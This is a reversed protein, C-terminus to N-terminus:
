ASKKLLGQVGRIAAVVPPGAPGAGDGSLEPVWSALATLVRDRGGRVGDHNVADGLTRLMADVEPATVVADRRLVRVAPHETEDLVEADYALAEHLKEGPRSGTIVIELEAAAGVMRGAPSQEARSMASGGRLVPELGHALVFREALELINVPEGMDLVFLGAESGREARGAISAAQLVLSAAEPITMFYRTMRPDTVTIPGGEGLQASWIPLVSGASGLVNGFRVIGCRMAWGGARGQIYMEALRKTAGMVSRPRVAKDSSILVFASAGAAAAADAISRTGFVNNIVAHRPHDEMLPVHKHAAAHLVLDPALEGVVERTSAEEVVDHLVARRDITPWRSGIQRDIEFLANESRDMLALVSPGFGAATRALESGISGGAGTILVRRGRILAGVAERDIPRPERGVLAALEVARTGLGSAEVGVRAGAHGRGTAGAAPERTLQEILPDIRRAEIGRAALEREIATAQRSATGPMSVLAVWPERGIWTIADALAEGRGVVPIGLRGLRERDRDTMPGCVIVGAPRVAPEAAALQRVLQGATSVTGIM